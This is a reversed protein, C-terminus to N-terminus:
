IIKPWSKDPLMIGRVTGFVENVLGDSVDINKTLLLVRTGVGLWLLEALNTYTSKKPVRVKDKHSGGKILDKARISVCDICKFAFLTERNNMWKSSVQIFVQIFHMVGIM